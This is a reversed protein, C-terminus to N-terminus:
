QDLSPSLPGFVCFAVHCEFSLWISLKAAVFAAELRLECSEIVFAENSLIALWGLSTCLTGDSWSFVKRIQQGELLLACLATLGHSIATWGLSTCLTGDSWLM